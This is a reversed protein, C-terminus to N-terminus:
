KTASVATSPYLCLRATRYIPASVPKEDCTEVVYGIGNANAYAIKEDHSGLANVEAVRPHWEGYYSPSWLVAAGNRFDVWVARHSAYEFIGANLVAEDEVASKISPPGGLFNWTPLLFVSTPPTNSGAWTALSRWENVWATAQMNATISRWSVIVVGLLVLALAALRLPVRRIFVWSLLRSRLAQHGSFAILTSALLAFICPQLTSTKMPTCLTLVLVPAFIKGLISDESYWWETALVLAGLLAMLHLSTGVRLLHLNLILPSHTLYPVVIGLAYIAAFCATALLFLQGRKGLAYFSALALVLLSFLNLKEILGIDKFLFHYPWFEELFAVYDFAVPKGFDPNALIYWIVPAALMAAMISGILAELISRRWTISHRILLGLTITITIVADWVGIFANDFFIIGNLAMAPILKARATFYVLL